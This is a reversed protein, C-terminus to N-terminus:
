TIGKNNLLKEFFFEFAVPPLLLLGHCVLLESDCDDVGILTFGLLAPLLAGPSAWNVFRAM